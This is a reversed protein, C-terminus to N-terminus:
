PSTGSVHTAFDAEQYIFSGKYFAFNPIHIPQNKLFESIQALIPEFKLFNQFFRTIKNLIQGFIPGIPIHIPWKKKFFQYKYPDVKLNRPPVDRGLGFKLVGGPFRHSIKGFIKFKPLRKRGGRDPFLPPRFRNGLNLNEAFNGM